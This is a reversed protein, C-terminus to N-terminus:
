TTSNQDMGVARSGEVPLRRQSTSGPDRRQQQKWAATGVCYGARVGNTGHGLGQRQYVYRSKRSRSTTLHLCATSSDPSKHGYTRLPSLRVCSTRPSFMRSRAPMTRSMTMPSMFTNCVFRCTPLRSLAFVGTQNAASCRSSTIRRQLFCILLSQSEHFFM